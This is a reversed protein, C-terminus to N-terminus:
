RVMIEVWTLVLLFHKTINFTVKTAETLKTRNYYPIMSRSHILYGYGTVNSSYENLVIWHIKRIKDIKQKRHM